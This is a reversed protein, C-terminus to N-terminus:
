AHRRIIDMAQEVTVKLSRHEHEYQDLQQQMRDLAATRADVADILCCLREQKLQLEQELTQVTKQLADIRESTTRKEGAGKTEEGSQLRAM